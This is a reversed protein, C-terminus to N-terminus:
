ARKKADELDGLAILALARETPQVHVVRPGDDDLWDGERLRLWGKHVLCALAWRAVPNAFPFPSMAGACRFRVEPERLPNEAGYTEGYKVERTLRVWPRVGRRIPRHTAVWVLLHLAVSEGPETMWDERPVGLVRQPNPRDKM